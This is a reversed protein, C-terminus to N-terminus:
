AAPFINQVVRSEVYRFLTTDGEDTMVRTLNVEWTLVREAGREGEMHTHEYNVLVSRSASIKLKNKGRLELQGTRGGAAPGPFGTLAFLARRWGSSM